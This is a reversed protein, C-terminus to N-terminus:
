FLGANLKPLMPKELKGCVSVSQNHRCKKPAGPEWPPIHRDRSEQKPSDSIQRLEDLTVQRDGIEDQVVVLTKGYPNKGAVEDVVVRQVYEVTEGPEPIWEGM